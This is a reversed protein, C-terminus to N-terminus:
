SGLHASFCSAIRWRADQASPAHYGIGVIKVMRFLADHHDNLFAQWGDQYEKVDHEVGNATLARTSGPPAWRRLARNTLLSV